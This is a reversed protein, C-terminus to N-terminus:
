QLALGSLAGAPSRAAPATRGSGSAVASQNPQVALDPIEVHHQAAIEVSGKDCPADRTM